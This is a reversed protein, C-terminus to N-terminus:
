IEIHRPQKPKPKKAKAKTAAPPSEDTPAEDAPSEPAPDGTWPSRLLRLKALLEDLKAETVPKRRPKPKPMSFLENLEAETVPKPKSKPKPMSDRLSSLKEFIEPLASYAGAIFAEFVKDKASAGAAKRLLYLQIEPDQEMLGRSMLDRREDHELDRADRNLSRVRAFLDFWADAAKPNIMEPISIQLPKSKFVAAKRTKPDIKAKKNQVRAGKPAKKSIM